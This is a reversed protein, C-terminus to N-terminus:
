VRTIFITVSYELVRTTKLACEQSDIQKNKPKLKELVVRKKGMRFSWESFDMVRM